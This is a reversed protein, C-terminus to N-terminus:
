FRKEISKRRITLMVPFFVLAVVTVAAIGISSMTGISKIGLHSAFIQSAFGTLTTLSSFFVAGGTMQLSIPMKEAGDTKYRHFIHISSDVGIGVVTPVVILNFLNFPIGALYAWGIMWMIGTILPILILLSSKLSRFMILLTLFVAILSFFIALPVEKEIVNKIDALLFYTGINKYDKLEGKITGFDEKLSLVTIINKKNGSFTMKVVKGFSGDKERTKDKIWEPLKEIEIADKVSLVPFIEKEIKNKTADPFLNIKREILRKTNKIIRLKQEQDDPVFSFVSLVMRPFEHPHEKSILKQVAIHADKTEELSDTLIYNPVTRDIESRGEKKMMTRYKAYLTSDREKVPYSLNGMDYEFKIFFTSTISLVILILATIMITKPFRSLKNFIDSLILLRRPTKTIPRIKEFITIFAPFLLIITILSTVVGIGAVIGFDSFGKFEVFYLSFFAIATTLAGSIISSLVRNYTVTMSEPVSKGKAREESYRSLLHIAFDIGLGYLMAFSFASILSFEKVILLSSTIASIIGFSLPILIIFLSSFTKFYLIITLALLFVCLGVTSFLDNQVVNKQKLKSKYDGGTEVTVGYKSPDIRKVINDVVRIVEETEKMDLSSSVDPHIKIEMMTGDSTSFYKQIRYADREKKIRDSIKDLEKELSDSKDSKGSKDSLESLTLSKEVEASILKQVKTEIKELDELPLFLMARDELYSVNQEFEVFRIINEKELEPVLAKFFEINSDISSAKSVVSLTDTSGIRGSLEKLDLVAQNNGDFLAELDSNISFHNKLYVLEVTLILLLFFIVLPSNKYSFQIYKEFFKKM